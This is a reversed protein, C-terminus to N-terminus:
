SLEGFLSDLEKNHGCFAHYKMDLYKCDASVSRTTERGFIIDTYEVIIRSQLYDGGDHHKGVVVAERGVFNKNPVDKSWVLVDGVSIELPDVAM